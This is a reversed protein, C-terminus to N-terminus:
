TFFQTKKLSFFYGQGSKKLTKIGNFQTGISYWTCEIGHTNDIGHTWYNDMDIGHPQTMGCPKTLVMLCQRYWSDMDIGLIWRQVM